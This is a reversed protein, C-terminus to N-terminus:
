TEPEGALFRDVTDAGAAALMDFILKKRLAVLLVTAGNVGARALETANEKPKKGVVVRLFTRVEQDLLGELTTKYILLDKPKFGARESLGLRKLQGIAALVELDPGAFTREGGRDVGSVLGVKELELILRRPLDFTKSAAEVSLPPSQTEPAIQTLAAQQTEMTARVQDGAGRGAVIRKILHLPLFRRKQLDKILRIREVCGPDYYAMNRHSKVPRPLLGERLYHQITGRNVGARRALEGIKLLEREGAM